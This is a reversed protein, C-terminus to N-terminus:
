RLWAGLWSACTSAAETPWSVTLATDGRRIEIQITPAISPAIPPASAVGVAIFTAAPASLPTPLSASPMACERPASGLGRESMWRRALNANIGHALAIGAVSAGPKRCASVVAQKFEESHHRRTRARKLVEDM